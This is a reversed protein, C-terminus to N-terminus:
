GLVTENFILPYLWTSDKCSNIIKSEFYELIIQHVPSQIAEQLARIEDDTPYLIAGNM